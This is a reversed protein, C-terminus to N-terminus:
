KKEPRWAPDRDAGGDSDDLERIKLAGEASAHGRRQLFQKFLIRVLYAPYELAEREVEM